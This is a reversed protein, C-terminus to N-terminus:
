SGGRVARVYGTDAKYEFFVSGDGFNVDWTSDPLSAATTVSWYEAVAPGLATQDLCPSTTCPYAELLITQLEYITPLRWDCQGAFCGGSNLAAVFTTFATGDAAMGAPDVASWSYVNDKDHVTADDTKQEWHLATLRDTVTGDGNDEYRPNDCTAGTGSAKAQLKAWTDTYKVRCKALAAQLDVSAGGFWKALVKQQCSAYKAAADYRGKQCAQEPDAAQAASAGILFAGAIFITLGTLRAHTRM